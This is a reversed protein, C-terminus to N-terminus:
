VQLLPGLAESFVLPSTWSSACLSLSIKSKELAGVMGLAETFHLVFTCGHQRKKM